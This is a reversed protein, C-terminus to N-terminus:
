LEAVPGNGKVKVLQTHVLAPLHLGFVGTEVDPWNEVHSVAWRQVRNFGDEAFHFGRKTTNPQIRKNVFDTEIKITCNCLSELRHFRYMTSGTYPFAPM